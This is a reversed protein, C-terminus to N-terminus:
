YKIFDLVNKLFYIFKNKKPILKFFKLKLDDVYKRAENIRSKADESLTVRSRNRSVHIVDEFSLTDGDIVVVNDNAHCLASFLFAGLILIRKTHM